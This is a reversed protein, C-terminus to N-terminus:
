YPSQHSYPLEQVPPSLQDMSPSALYSNSTYDEDVDMNDVAQDEAAVRAAEEAEEQLRKAEEIKRLEEEEKQKQEEIKRREAAREYILADFGAVDQMKAVEVPAKLTTFKHTTNGFTLDVDPIVDLYFKKLENSYQESVAKNSELEQDLRLNFQSINEDNTQNRTTRASKVEAIETELQQVRESTIVDFESIRLLQPQPCIVASRMADLNEVLKLAYISKYTLSRLGGEVTNGNLISSAFGFSANRENPEKYETPEVPRKPGASLM